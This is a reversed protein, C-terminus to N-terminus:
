ETTWCQEEEAGLSNPLPLQVLSDALCQIPLPIEWQPTLSTFAALGRGAAEEGVDEPQLAPELARGVLALPLPSLRMALLSGKKGGRERLLLM